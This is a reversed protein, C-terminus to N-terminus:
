VNAGASSPIDKGENGAFEANLSLGEVLIGAALFRAPFMEAFQLLM